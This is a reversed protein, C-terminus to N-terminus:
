CCHESLGESIQQYPKRISTPIAELVSLLLTLTELLQWRQQVEADSLVMTPPAGQEPLSVTATGLSGLHLGMRWVRIKGVYAWGQKWGVEKSVDMEAASVAFVEAGRVVLAVDGVALVGAGNAAAAAWGCV